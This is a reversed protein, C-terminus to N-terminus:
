KIKRFNKIPWIVFCGKGRILDYRIFGIDKFRSDKSNNRNDGLVFFTNQPVARKHFDDVSKKFIYSERLVKNNVFIKEDAMQITDGDTAIVRKIMKKNQDNPHKFVLVDGKKPKSIRYTFKNIIFREGDMLTPWMSNGEVQICEVVFLRVTILFFIVIIMVKQKKNKIHNKKM